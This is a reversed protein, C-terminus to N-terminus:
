ATSLQNEEYKFSEIEGKYKEIYDILMKSDPKCGKEAYLDSVALGLITSHLLDNKLILGLIYGVDFYERGGGSKEFRKEPTIEFQSQRSFSLTAPFSDIILHSIDMLDFLCRSKEKLGPSTSFGAHSSNRGNRIEWMNAAHQEDLMLTVKGHLSYDSIIDLIEDVEFTMKKAADGLYFVFEFDNRKLPMIIDRRLNDWIDSANAVDSWNAFEVIQCNAFLMKLDEMMLDTKLDRWRLAARNKNINDIFDKESLSLRGHPSDLILRGIGFGNFFEPPLAEYSGMSNLGGGALFPNLMEGENVHDFYFDIADGMKQLSGLLESLVADTNEFQNNIM